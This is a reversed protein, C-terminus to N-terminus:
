NSARRTNNNVPNLTSYISNALDKGVNYPNRKQGSGISLEGGDIDKLSITSLTLSDKKETFSFEEHKVVIQGIISSKNNLKEDMFLRTLEREFAKKVRSGTM